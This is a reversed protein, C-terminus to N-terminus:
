KILHGTWANKTHDRVYFTFVVTKFHGMEVLYPALRLVVTNKNQGGCNDMAVTLKKGPQWLTAILVMVIWTISTTIEM